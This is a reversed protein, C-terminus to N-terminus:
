CFTRKFMTLPLFNPSLELPSLRQKHRVFNHSEHRTESLIFDIDGPFCVHLQEHGFRWPCIRRSDDYSRSSYLVSSFCFGLNYSDKYTEQAKSITDRSVVKQKSTARM